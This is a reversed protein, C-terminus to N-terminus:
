TYAISSEQKQKKKKKLRKILASGETDVIAGILLKDHGVEDEIDKLIVIADQEPLGTLERVKNLFAM